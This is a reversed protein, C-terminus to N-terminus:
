KGSVCVSAESAISSRTWSGLDRPQGGGLPHSLAAPGLASLPGPRPLAVQLVRSMWQFSDEETSDPRQEAVIVIREDHLVTVSFVAIRHPCSPVCVTLVLPLHKATLLRSRRSSFGAKGASAAQQEVQCPWLERPPLPLQVMAMREALTPPMTPCSGLTGDERLPLVKGTVQLHGREM